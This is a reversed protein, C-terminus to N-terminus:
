IKSCKDKIEIIFSYAISTKSEHQLVSSLQLQLQHLIIIIPKCSYIKNCTSYIRMQKDHCSTRINSALKYMWLRKRETEPTYRFRLFTKVLQCLEAGQLRTVNVSAYEDVSRSV